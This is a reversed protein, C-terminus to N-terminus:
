LFGVAEEKVRWSLRVARMLVRWCLRVSLGVWFPSLSVTLRYATQKRNQRPGRQLYRGDDAIGFGGCPHRSSKLVLGGLHKFEPHPTPQKSQVWSTVM